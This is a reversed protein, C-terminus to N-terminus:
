MAKSRANVVFGATLHVFIFVVFFGQMSLAFEYCSFPMKAILSIEGEPIFIGTMAGNYVSYTESKVNNVYVNMGLKYNYPLVMMSAKLTHAKLSIGSPTIHFQSSNLFHNDSVDFRDFIYDLPFAQLFMKIDSAKEKPIEAVVSYNYAKSTCFPALYRDLPLTNINNYIANTIFPPKSTSQPTTMVSCEKLLRHWDKYMFLTTPKEYINWKLTILFEKKSYRPTTEVPDKGKKASLQKLYNQANHKSGYIMAAM